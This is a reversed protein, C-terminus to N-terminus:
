RSVMLAALLRSSLFLRYPNGPVEAFGWRQYFAKSREDVCDLVVAIFAFTRGAEFCDHLAQALLRDGLGQGQHRLSVGLWAVIAVPLARRPPTRVVDPPLDSFDVQGTALTSFGAVAGGRDVLVKTVSLRKDQHQWAKTRLWDNVEAQGCDFTRRPHSRNLIELRFASPFRVGSM